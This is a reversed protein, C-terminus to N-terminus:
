ICKIYKTHYYKSYQKLINNAQSSDKVNYKWYGVGPGTSYIRPGVMDGADVMDAYTLVDTTATQPDRTTTVGYALNAAYIWVQNKQLGWSPWMHAHVDVFGPVITKGTVDIIKTGPSQNLTGTAGIGTIRNNEVLVDGNEIVEDGKMTVIRAGKFLVSSQPLDKKYYFLIDKEKALYKPEDKKAKKKAISDRAAKVSDSAPELINKTKLALDISDAKRKLEAKDAIRVSDYFTEAAEVDYVFIRVAQVGTYKKEM